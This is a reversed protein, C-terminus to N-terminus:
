DRYDPCDRDLVDKLANFHKIAYESSLGNRIEYATAKAMNDSIYKLPRGTSMALVLVECTRELYYLDDFAEAISDGVVIVGHHALFLVRKGGIKSAMRDGEATATAVGGYDDDYAVDDWFRLANQTVPEVRGGELSTLSTAYPMHTHLVARARSHQAHIRSHICFATVELEHEGELIDGAENVVLIDSARMMSWHVGHPNILFCDEQGSVVYSFHNCVGEHMNFRAALRLAAAMDIRAQRFTNSM